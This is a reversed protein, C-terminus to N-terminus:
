NTLIHRERGYLYDHTYSIFKVRTGLSFGGNCSRGCPDPQQKKETLVAFMAPNDKTNFKSPVHVVQQKANFLM